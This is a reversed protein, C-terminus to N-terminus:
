SVLLDFFSDASGLTLTAETTSNAIVIGNSFVRGYVGFDVPPQTSQGALLPFTILPQQGALSGIPGVSDFVQIYRTSANTNTAIIRHLRALGGPVTM